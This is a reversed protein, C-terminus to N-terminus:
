LKARIQNYSTSIYLSAKLFGSKKAKASNKANKAWFQLCPGPIDVYCQVNSIM